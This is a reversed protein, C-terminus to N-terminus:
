SFFLFIISWGKEFIKFLRGIGLQTLRLEEQESAFAEQM